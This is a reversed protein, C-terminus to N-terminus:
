ARTSITGHVAGSGGSTFLLLNGGNRVVILIRGGSSRVLSSTVDGLSINDWSGSGIGSLLREVDLKLIIGCWLLRGFLNGLFGTSGLTSSSVSFLGLGLRGNGLGNSRLFDTNQLGRNGSRV